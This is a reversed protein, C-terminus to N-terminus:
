IEPHRQRRSWQNGTPFGAFTCVIARVPSLLEDVTYQTTLPWKSTSAMHNFTERTENHVYGLGVRSQGLGQVVMWKGRAKCKDNSSRRNSISSSSSTNAGDGPRLTHRPPAGAACRRGRRGCSRDLTRSEQRVTQGHLLWGIECM